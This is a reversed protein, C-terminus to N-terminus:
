AEPRPSKARWDRASAEPHGKVVLSGNADICESMTVALGNRKVFYAKRDPVPDVTAKMPGSPTPM